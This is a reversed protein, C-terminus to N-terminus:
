VTSPHLIDVCNGDVEARVQQHGTCVQDVRLPLPALRGSDVGEQLGTLLEGDAQDEQLAGWLALPQQAVGPEGLHYTVAATQKYFRDNDGFALPPPAVAPQQHFLGLAVGSASAELAQAQGRVVLLVEICM